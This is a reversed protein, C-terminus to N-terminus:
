LTMCEIEVDKVVRTWEAPEYGPSPLTLTGVSYVSVIYKLRQMRKCMGPEQQIAIIIGLLLFAFHLDAYYM